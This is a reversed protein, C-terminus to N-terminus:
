LIPPSTPTSNKTKGMLAWRKILYIGTLVVWILMPGAQTQQQTTVSYGRLADVFAGGMFLSVYTIFFMVVGFKRRRLLGVCCLAASTGIFAGVTRGYVDSDSSFTILLIPIAVLGAIIGNYTGWRYPKNGIPKAKVSFWILIGQFLVMGVVWPVYPRGSVATRRPSLLAFSGVFRYFQPPEIAETTYDFFSYTRAGGVLYGYVFLTSFDPLSIKAKLKSSGMLPFDSPEIRAGQVRWDRPLSEQMERVFKNKDVPDWNSKDWVVIMFKKDAVEVIFATRKGGGVDPLATYSWQSDPTPSDISFNFQEVTLKGDHLWTSPVPQTATQSFLLNTWVLVASVSLLVLLARCGFSRGVKQLIRGARETHM